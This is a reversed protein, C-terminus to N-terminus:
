GALERLYQFLKRSAAPPRGSGAEKQHQRVLQRLHQRDARPYALLVKEVAEPEGTLLDNRLSELRQFAEAQGRRDQHLEALAQALPEADIKRMLKGIYQMQRRRASNSRIRRAQDIAQALLEDEIPMRALERDSLGVLQEGLEQLATMARKVASKSPTTDEGAEGGEGFQGDGEAM